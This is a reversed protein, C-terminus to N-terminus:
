RFSTADILQGLANATHSRIKIASDIWPIMRCSKMTGTIPSMGARWTPTEILDAIM